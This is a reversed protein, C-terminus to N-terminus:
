AEAIKDNRDQTVVSRICLIRITRIENDRNKCRIPRSFINRDYECTREYRYEDYKGFIIIFNTLM